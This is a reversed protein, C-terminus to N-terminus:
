HNKGHQRISIKQLVNMALDYLDRLDRFSPILERFPRGTEKCFWLAVVASTILYSVSATFAAGYYGHEPILWFGLGLTIILGAASALANVYYKGTGSFYHGGIMAINYILIGPALWWLVRNIQSFGAGFLFTFFGSPLLVLPLIVALSAWLSLRIFRATLQQSYGKDTSNAITSYQVLAISGSIMWVAEMISVGNSYVGVSEIGAFGELLYYSIRFSLLQAIHALQNVFGYAFLDRILQRYSKLAPAASRRLPALFLLSILLMCLYSVYLAAFYARIDRLESFAVLGTFTVIVALSQLLNVLNSKGIHERGILLNTNISAWSNIVSLVAIHLAWEHPVLVTADLVLWWVLGCLVSWGYSPLILQRIRYRPALYVLSAGGLINSFLLILAVTTIIIGQEGKGAPGLFRSVAVVVLFNIIATVFRTGFTTAIRKFM